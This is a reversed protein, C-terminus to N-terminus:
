ARLVRDNRVFQIVGADNVADPEAFRLAVTVFIAVHGVEFRLQLVRFIRPEAEDRGVADERHIACDRIELPDAVEGFFVVRKHHHVVRVGGTENAFSPAACRLM